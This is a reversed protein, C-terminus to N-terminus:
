VILGVTPTLTQNQTRLQLEPNQPQLRLQLGVFFLSEADRIFINPSSYKEVYNHWLFTADYWIFM